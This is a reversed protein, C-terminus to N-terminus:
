DKSREISFALPAKGKPTLLLFTKDGSKLYGLNGADYGSSLQVRSVIEGRDTDLLLVESGTAAAVFRWNGLFMCDLIERTGKEWRAKREVDYVPLANIERQKEAVDILHLKAGFLRPPHRQFDTDTLYTGVVALEGGPSKATAKIDESRWTKADLKAMAGLAADKEPKHSTASGGPAPVPGTLRLKVAFARVPDLVDLGAKRCGSDVARQLANDIAAAKTLGDSPPNGPVGIPESTGASVNADEKVFRVDAIATASFYDALGEVADAKIYVRAIGSIGYKKTSEYVEKYSMVYTPDNLRSVGSKLEEAKASDLVSVGDAALISELRALATKEFEKASAGEAFVAVSIKKGKLTAGLPETTAGHAPKALAFIVLVGCLLAGGTLITKVKM